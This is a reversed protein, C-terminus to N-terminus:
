FVVVKGLTEFPYIIVSFDGERINLGKIKWIRRYIKLSIIVRQVM